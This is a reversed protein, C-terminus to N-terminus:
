QKTMHFIGTANGSDFSLDLAGTAPDVDRSIFEYFSGPVTMLHAEGTDTAFDREVVDALFATQRVRGNRSIEVKDKIPRGLARLTDALTVVDDVRDTAHNFANGETAIWAAEASVSRLAEYDAVKCPAHHRGFTAVLKPLLHLAAEFALTEGAALRDLAAVADADLPDQSRGFVRDAVAGFAADFRDVHLESVFFQPITEPFDRHRYARGTMRLAPLPYTAADEYGLPELIRRFAMEGRPLAGTDGDVLAVTRIAGHDFCLRRGEAVAEAVYGAASPVRELLGAFLLMNMAAAVEARTVEAANAERVPLMPTLVEAIRRGKDEGLVGMVLRATAKNEITM